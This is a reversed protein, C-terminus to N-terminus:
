KSNKLFSAAFTVAELANRVFPFDMPNWVNPDDMSHVTPWEELVSAAKRIDMKQNVPNGRLVEIALRMAECAKKVYPYDEPPWAGRDDMGYFTIWKELLRAARIPDMQTNMDLRLGKSNM